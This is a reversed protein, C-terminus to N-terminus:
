LMAIALSVSSWTPDTACCQQADNMAEDLRDLSLLAEARHHLLTAVLRENNPATILKLGQTFHEVAAGVDGAVQACLGSDIWSSAQAAKTSDDDTAQSSTASQIVASQEVVQSPSAVSVGVSANKGRKKKKSPQSSASEVTKSSVASSDPSQATSRSKSWRDMIEPYAAKLPSSAPIYDFAVKDFKDNRSADVGADLLIQMLEEFKQPTYREDLVAETIAALHLISHGDKDVENLESVNQYDRVLMFKLLTFTGATCM